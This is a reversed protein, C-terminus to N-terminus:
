KFQKYPCNGFGYDELCKGVINLHTSTSLYKAKHFIDGLFYELEGFCTLSEYPTLQDNCKKIQKLSLTRRENLGLMQLESNGSGPPGIVRMFSVQPIGSKNSIYEKIPAFFSEFDTISALAPKSKIYDLGKDIMAIADRHIDDQCLVEPTNDCYKEKMDEVVNYAGNFINGRYDPNRMKSCVDNIFIEKAFETYENKCTSEDAQVSFVPLLLCTLLTRKM